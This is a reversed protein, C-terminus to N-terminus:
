AVPQLCAEYCGTTFMELIALTPEVGVGPELFFGLAGNSLRAGLSILVGRAWPTRTKGLKMVPTLTISVVSQVAIDLSQQTYFSQKRNLKRYKHENTSAISM